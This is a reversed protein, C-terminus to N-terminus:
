QRKSEVLIAPRVGNISGFRAQAEAPRMYRVRAALDISIRGLASVTGILQDDLYVATTPDGGRNQPDREFWFPRLHRVADYLNNQKTAALETALLLYHDGGGTRPPPAGRHCAIALLLLMIAAFRCRVTAAWSIREDAVRLSLDGGPCKLTWLAPAARLKM